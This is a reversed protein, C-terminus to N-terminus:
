ALLAGAKGVVEVSAKDGDALGGVASVGVVHKGSAAVILKGNADSALKTMANTVAGGILAKSIGSEDIECAEGLIPANKLIGLALDGDGCKVVAGANNLKVAKFQDASLDEGAVYVGPKFGPVEFEKSM